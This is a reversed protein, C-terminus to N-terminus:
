WSMPWGRSAIEPPVSRQLRYRSISVLEGQLFCFFLSDMLNNIFLNRLIAGLHRLPMICNVSTSVQRWDAFCVGLETAPHWAQFCNTSCPSCAFSITALTLASSFSLLGLDSFGIRRAGSDDEWGLFPVNQYCLNFRRGLRLWSSPAIRWFQHSGVLLIGELIFMNDGQKLQKVFAILELQWLCPMRFLHALFIVGVVAQVVLYESVRHLTAVNQECTRISASTSLSPEYCFFPSRSYSMRPAEVIQCSRGNAGIPTTKM